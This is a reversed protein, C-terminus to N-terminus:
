TKLLFFAYILANFQVFERTISRSVEDGSFDFGAM